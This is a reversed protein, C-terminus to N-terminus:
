ATVLFNCIKRLTKEPYSALEEYYITLWEEEAFFRKLYFASLSLLGWRKLALKFNHYKRIYSNVVARGDRLLYLVKVNLNASQSLLFLRKGFKSSDALFTCGSIHYICDFLLENYYLRHNLDSKSMNFIHRWRPASIDFHELGFNSKSKICQIVERWFPDNVLTDRGKDSSPVQQADIYDGITLLEGLGIIQSHGNLLLNLLTSGCHGAGLIYIVTYRNSM